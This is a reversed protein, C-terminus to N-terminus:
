GRGLRVPTVCAPYSACEDRRNRADSSHTTSSAATSSSPAKRPSPRSSRAARATTGCADRHAHRRPHRAELLARGDSKFKAADSGCLEHLLARGTVGYTCLGHLIPKPRLGRVQRVDPRLAAPQPRRSLRYLLAQDARTAYTVEHDPSASPCRRRTPSSTAARSDGFGGEGRIFARSGRTSRPSAPTRTRRSPRWSRVVARRARTTSASSARRDVVVEGDTPIPRARGRGQEGHVLM